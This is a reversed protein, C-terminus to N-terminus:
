YRRNAREQATNRKLARFYYVSEFDAPWERQTRSPTACVRQQAMTFARRKAEIFSWWRAAEVFPETPTNSLEFVM